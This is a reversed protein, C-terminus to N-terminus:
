FNFKEQSSIILTKTMDEVVLWYEEVNLESKLLSFFIASVSVLSSKIGDIHFSSLM